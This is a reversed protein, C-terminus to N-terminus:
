LRYRSTIPLRRDKGFARPTIKVGPPAQRRKYENRDVMSIVQRAIAEDYGDAVLEELSWDEEVYRELIPDLVEYPPLTDADKQDPRLEASPPKTMVSESIVASDAQANRWRALEYVLTKPVDKLVAFGGAMDGYLTSYGTAMESKNGTTLVLWGFKNSLAMLLNGRIRAQLNEETLDASRNEFAPALVRTTTEFIETIPFTLMQIELAHALAAADTMSGESSFKSPLSMGTVAESGLADVAIVAVLSSDIGGSLGLVVRRFGNKKVYDRTGIVLAAYVEAVDDHEVTVYGATKSQIALPRDSLVRRRVTPPPQRPNQRRRPDHLRARFVQELEIDGVLLDDAFPRAEVLLEGAADFIVSDGDFVLEDQGGIMNVYAVAVGYDAARTALMRHRGHWKGRHYPSANINIVVDAGAIAMREVPGGPSWIDECISIGIAAEGIQLVLEGSGRAFYRLEDFVGYNPLRQKRYTDVWEGDHLIAAANYLDIDRDVFGVVATINKTKAQLELLARRNAEIFSPKLLLDEPPYGTIALEPFAVIHAGLDRAEEVREAIASANELLGGVTPNM